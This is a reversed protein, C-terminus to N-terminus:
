GSKKGAALLESAHRRAIASDPEGGLLRAIEGQREGSDLREVRTLTRGKQQTKRVVFHHTARAAIQPLHTICIVQYRGGLEAMKDGVATGTRGSIGTDIEDFILTPVQDQSRLLVKLGLMIRSLEGGSAIKRLPKLAEGVNPSFLFEVQDVGYDHVRYRKGDPFPLWEGARSAERRDEGTDEGDETAGFFAQGSEERDLRVEFRVATMELDKLHRQLGKAFREGTERRKVSLGEAAQVVQRELEAREAELREQEERGHTLTHLEREFQAAKELIEEITGGYKRKLQRILHLRDEIESLREPDHELDEAYSRLTVALDDVEARVAELREAVPGLSPDLRVAEAALTAVQAVLDSVPAPCNEGEYLLDNAATANRKLAEAHTLRRLEEDLAADEGPVLEAEAIERLQYELVGKQREIEREDRNLSRLRAVAASYRGFAARYAELARAHEGDGFGDLIERHVEVRLLSQHQHQGHLDVLRDGIQRLQALTVLRGNALCRSRGQAGIERRLVLEVPGNPTGPRKKGSVGTPLVVDDELLGWEALLDRLRGCASVEFLAEAVASECGTRVDDSSAREGLVLNLAGLIISKGAGTEGTLVTFGDTFDLTLADIIALDEIHLRLLM